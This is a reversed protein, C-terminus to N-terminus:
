EGDSTQGVGDIVEQVQDRPIVENVKIMTTKYRDMPKSKENMPDYMQNECSCTVIETHVSQESLVGAMALRVTTAQYVEVYGRDSCTRCKVTKENMENWTPSVIDKILDIALTEQNEFRRTMDKAIVDSKSWDYIIQRVESADMEQVKEDLTECTKIYTEIRPAVKPAPENAERPKWRRKIMSVTPFRDEDTICRSVASKFQKDTWGSFQEFYIMVLEPSLERNFAIAVKTMQMQFEEFQM